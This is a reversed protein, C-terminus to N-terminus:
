ARMLLGHGDSFERIMGEPFPIFVARGVGYFLGDLSKETVYGNLDFSEKKVFQDKGM